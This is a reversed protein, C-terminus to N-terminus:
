GDTTLMSEVAVPLLKSRNSPRWEHAQPSHADLPEFATGPPGSPLPHDEPEPWSTLVPVRGCSDRLSSGVPVKRLRYPYPERPLAGWEGPAIGGSSRGGSAASALEATQAPRVALDVLRGDRDPSRNGVCPTTNLDLVRQGVTCPSDREISRRDGDQRGVM